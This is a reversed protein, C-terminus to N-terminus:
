QQSGAPLGTTDPTMPPRDAPPPVEAPPPEEAPTPPQGSDGRRFGSKLAVWPLSATDAVFSLPFDLAILATLLLKESMVAAPRAEPDRPLDVSLTSKLALSDFEVGGYCHPQEGPGYVNWVTGCGASAVLCPLLLGSLLARM